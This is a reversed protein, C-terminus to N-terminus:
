EEVLRLALTSGGRGCGIVVAKVRQAYRNPTQALAAADDLM